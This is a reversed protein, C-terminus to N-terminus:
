LPYVNNAKKILKVFVITMLQNKELAKILNAQLCMQSPYKILQNIIPPGLGRHTTCGRPLHDQVSYSLLTLFCHEEVAESKTGAELSRDQNGSRIEKLEANNDPLIIYLLDNGGLTSKTLTENCSYVNFQSLPQLVSLFTTPTAIVIGEGFQM